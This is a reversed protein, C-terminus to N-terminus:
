LDAMATGRESRTVFSDEKRLEQTNFNPIDTTQLPIQLSPSSSSTWNGFLVTEENTLLNRESFSPKKYSIHLMTGNNGFGKGTSSIHDKRKFTCYSGPFRGEALASPSAKQCKESTGSKTISFSIM